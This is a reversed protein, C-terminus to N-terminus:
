DEKTVKHYCNSISCGDCMENSDCDVKVKSNLYYSLVFILSLCLVVLLASVYSM